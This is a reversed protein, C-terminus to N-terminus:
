ENVILELGQRIGQPLKRIWGLDVPIIASYRDSKKQPPAEPQDWSGLDYNKGTEVIWRWQIKRESISQLQVLPNIV